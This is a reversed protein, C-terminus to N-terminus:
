GRGSPSPSKASGMVKACIGLGRSAYDGSHGSLFLGNRGFAGVTVFRNQSAEDRCWTHKKQLLQAGTGVFYLFVMLVVEIASPLELGRDQLSDIYHIPQSISDALVSTYLFHWGADCDQKAFPEELYWPHDFFSPQKAPDTGLIKRLNLINLGSRAMPTPFAIIADDVNGIPTTDFEAKEAETFRNPIGMLAFRREVEPPSLSIM